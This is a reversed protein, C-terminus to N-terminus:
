VLDSAGWTTEGPTGLLSRDRMLRYDEDSLENIFQYYAEERDLREQQRQREGEGSLSRATMQGGGEGSCSRACDM